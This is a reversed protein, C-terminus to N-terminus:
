EDAAGRANGRRLQNRAVDPEVRTGALDGLRPIRHLEGGLFILKQGVQHVVLALDDASGLENLMDVVLVEVAVAVRDLHEYRADSLLQARIRDSGNAAETVAKLIGASSHCPGM